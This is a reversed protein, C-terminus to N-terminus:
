LLVQKHKNAGFVRSLLRQKATKQEEPTGVFSPLVGHMVYFFSLFGHDQRVIEIRANGPPTTTAWRLLHQQVVDALAVQAQAQQQQPPQRNAQMKAMAKNYKKLQAQYVRKEHEYRRQASGRAEVLAAFEEPPLGKPNSFDFAPLPQPPEPKRPMKAEQVNVPRKQEGAGAAAVKKRPLRNFASLTVLMPPPAGQVLAAEDFFAHTKAIAYEAVSELTVRAAAHLTLHTYLPRGEDLGAPAGDKSMRCATLMHAAGAQLPGRLRISCQREHADHLLIRPGLIARHDKYAVAAENPGNSVQAISAAGAKAMARDRVLAEIWALREEHQRSKADQQAEGALVLNDFCEVAAYVFPLGCGHPVVALPNWIMQGDRLQVAAVPDKSKDIVPLLITQDRELEVAVLRNRSTDVERLLLAANRTVELANPFSLWYSPAARGRSEVANAGSTAGVYSDISRIAFITDVTTHEPLQVAGVGGNRLEMGDSGATATLLFPCARQMHLRRKNRFTEYQTALFSNIKNIVEKYKDHRPTPDLLNYARHLEALQSEALPTNYSYGVAHPRGSLELESRLQLALGYAWALQLSDIEAGSTTLLETTWDVNQHVLVHTYPPDAQRFLRVVADRSNAYTFGTAENLIGSFPRGIDTEWVVITTRDAGSHKRAGIVFGATSAGYRPNIDVVLVREEPMDPAAALQQQQQPRRQTLQFSKLFTALTREANASRPMVRWDHYLMQGGRVSPALVDFAAQNRPTGNNNLKGFNLDFKAILPYYRRDTAQTERVTPQTKREDDKFWERAYAEGDAIAQRFADPHYSLFAPEIRQNVDGAAQAQQQKTWNARLVDPNRYRHALLQNRKLRDDNQLHRQQVQLAEKYEKSEGLAVAAAAAAAAMALLLCTPDLFEVECLVCEAM